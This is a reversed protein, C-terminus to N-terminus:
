YTENDVYKILFQLDDQMGGLLFLITDELMKIREKDTPLAPIGVEYWGRGENYEMEREEIIQGEQLETEQWSDDHFIHSVFGDSEVLVKKLKAM